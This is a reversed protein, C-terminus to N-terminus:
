PDHSRSTQSLSPRSRIRFAPTSRAAFGFGGGNSTSGPGASGPPWRRESAPTPFSEDDDDDDGSRTASGERRSPSRSPSARLRRRRRADDGECQERMAAAQAAHAELADHLERARAPLSKLPNERASKPSRSGPAVETISRLFAIDLKADHRHRDAHAKERRLELAWQELFTGAAVIAREGAEFAVRWNASEAGRTKEEVDLELEHVRERLREVEDQADRREAAEVDAQKEWADARM